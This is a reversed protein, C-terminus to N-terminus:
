GMERKKISYVLINICNYKSYLTYAYLIQLYYFQLLSYLNFLYYFIYFWIVSWM